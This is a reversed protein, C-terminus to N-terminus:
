ASSLMSVLCAALLCVLVVVLSLLVCAAILVVLPLCALLCHTELIQELCKLRKAGFLELNICRRRSGRLCMANMTAAFFEAWPVSASNSQAGM